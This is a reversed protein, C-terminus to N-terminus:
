MYTRRVIRTAMLKIHSDMQDWRNNAIEYYDGAVMM